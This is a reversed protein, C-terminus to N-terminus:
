SPKRLIEFYSREKERNDWTAQIHESLEPIDKELSTRWLTPDYEYARIM